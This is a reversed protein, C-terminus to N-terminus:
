CSFSSTTRERLLSTSFAFMTYREDWRYVLIFFTRCGYFYGQNITNKHSKKCRCLLWKWRLWLTTHFWIVICEKLMFSTIFDFGLFRNHVEIYKLTQSNQLMNFNTLNSFCLRALLFYVIDYHFIFLYLVCTIRSVVQYNEIIINSNM